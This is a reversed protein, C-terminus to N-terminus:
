SVETVLLVTEFWVFKVSALQGADPGSFGVVDRYRADRM